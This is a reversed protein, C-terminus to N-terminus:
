SLGKKPSFAQTPNKAERLWLNGVQSISFIVIVDQCPQSFSRPLIQPNGLEVSTSLTHYECNFYIPYLEWSRPLSQSAVSPPLNTVPGM